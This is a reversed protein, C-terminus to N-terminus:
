DASKVLYELLFHSQRHRDINVGKSAWSLESTAIPALNTYVFGTPRGSNDNAPRYWNKLSQISLLVSVLSVLGELLALIMLIVHANAVDSNACSNDAPQCESMDNVVTVCEVFITLSLGVSVLSFIMFLTLIGRDLRKSGVIGLVGAVSFFIGATIAFANETVWNTSIDYVIATIGLFLHTSGLLLSCPKCSHYPFIALRNSETSGRRSCNATLNLTGPRVPEYTITPPILLDIEDSYTPM